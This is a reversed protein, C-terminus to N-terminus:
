TAQRQPRPSILMGASGDALVHTWSPAKLLVFSGAGVRYIQHSWVALPTRWSIHCLQRYNDESNPVHLQIEARDADVFDTNLKLKIWEAGTGDTVVEISDRAFGEVFFARGDAAFQADMIVQTRRYAERDPATWLEPWFYTAGGPVKFRRNRFATPDAEYERAIQVLTRLGHVDPGYEYRTRQAGTGAQPSSKPEPEPGVLGRIRSIDRRSGDDVLATHQLHPVVRHAITLDHVDGQMARFSGNVTHSRGNRSRTHMPTVRDYRLPCGSAACTWPGGKTTPTVLNADWITGDVYRAFRQERQMQPM